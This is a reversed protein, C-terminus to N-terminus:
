EVCLLTITHDMFSYLLPKCVVIGSSKSSEGAESKKLFFLNSFATADHESAAWHLGCHLGVTAVATRVAM